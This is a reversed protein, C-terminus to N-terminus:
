KILKKGNVISVGRATNSITVVRGTLDYLGELDGKFPSKTLSIGTTDDEGDVLIRISQAKTPTGGTRSTVAMYWRQPNLTVSPSAAQQLHGGNMAYYGNTFIETATAYTGTFTYRNKVSSCDISASAAPVLTKNNLVLSHTGTEKARILYPYNPETSGSAKKLVVLYTRDFTGDDDDDYEIFNHIEAIDYKESWEDHNMSFPVYLAQWNKNNFTRTYTLTEYTEEHDLAYPQGDTFGDAYHQTEGILTALVPQPDFDDVEVIIFSNGDDKTTWDNCVYQKEGGLNINKQASFLLRVTSADADAFLIPNAPKDSLGDQGAFKQAILNYLYYNGDYYIFAFQQRKDTTGPTQNVGSEATGKLTTAEAGTVTLAGRKATYIRYAKQTNIDEPRLLHPKAEGVTGFVFSILKGNEAIETISRNLLNTGDDNVNFTTAAPVSTNSFETNRTYGPYTDGEMDYYYKESDNNDARVVTCRQHTNGSYTNSTTNVENWAWVNANYDIHSILLGHGYAGKNWSEQQINQLTYFENANAKNYIIYASPENATIPKMGTVTSSSDLIEPTLWGALMREYATYACPVCGNLNYNGSGMLSWFGMGANGSYATDYFDPLGLCHSFEHCITGIGAVGTSTSQSLENSCAYKGVVVGDLTVRGGTSGSLNWQHPWITEPGGGSSEAYGAYIVYVQDVNGDGDWDYDRFNVSADAQIVAERVMDAPHIDSGQENNGGYYAMKQSVTIPGVVDFKLEFQGYSQDKFYNYVSGIHNNEHYGDENLMREYVSYSDSRMRADPFDVLLVLGKKQGAFAADPNVSGAAKSRVERRTQSVSEHRQRAAARRTNFTADSLLTYTGDAQLEVKRGDDTVYYHLFEDGKLTVTVQTGDALTVTRRVPEAPVAWATMAYLSILMLCGFLRLTHKM